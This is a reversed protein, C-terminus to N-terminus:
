RRHISPVLRSVGVKGPRCRFQRAIPCRSVREVAIGIRILNDSRILRGGVCTAENYSRGQNILIIQRFLQDFITQGLGIM